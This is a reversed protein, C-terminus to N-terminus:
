VSAVRSRVKPLQRRDTRMRYRFVLHNFTALMKEMQEVSTEETEDVVRRFVALLSGADIDVEESRTAAALREETPPQTSVLPGSDEEITITTPISPASKSNPNSNLSSVRSTTTSTSPISKSNSVQGRSNTTASSHTSKSNLDREGHPLSSETEMDVLVDRVDCEDGEGGGGGLWLDAPTGGVGNCLVERGSGRSSSIVDGSIALPKARKTVANSGASFQENQHIAATKHRSIATIDDSTLSRNKQSVSSSATVRGADTDLPPSLLDNRNTEYDVGNRATRDGHLQSQMERDDKEERRGGLTTAVVIVDDNCREERTPSARNRAFLRHKVRARRRISRQISVVTSGSSASKYDTPTDVMDTDGRSRRSSSGALLIADEASDEESEETDMRDDSVGATNDRRSVGSRNPKRRKCRKSLASSNETSTDPADRSKRGDEEDEDDDYGSELLPESDGAVEGEGEEGKREEVERGREEEEEENEGEKRREGEEREGGMEEEEEGERERLKRPTRSTSYYDFGKEEPELGKVRLSRRRCEYM